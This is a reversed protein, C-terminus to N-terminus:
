QRLLQKSFFQVCNKTVSRFENDLLICEVGASDMKAKLYEGFKYHHVGESVTAPPTKPTSYYAWVPPDDSTLYTAPSAQRFLEEGHASATEEPTLGFFTGNFFSHGLSIAGFWEKIVAPDLTSQGSYIAVASLRTSMQLVSDPNGPDAFDDHFGIWLATCGGASSGAAGIRDPDINLERAHFRAYQISRACDRYHDPFVADPTLRYNVTMVSIGRRMLESVLAGSIKEKSGSSFGGGHFYVVLPTPNASPAKWLDFDNRNFSGYRGDAIDPAPLAASCSALLFGLGFIVEASYKKNRKMSRTDREKAAILSLEGYNM